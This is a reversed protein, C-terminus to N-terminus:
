LYLNILCQIRILLGDVLMDKKNESGVSASSMMSFSGSIRCQKGKEQLRLKFGRNLIKM